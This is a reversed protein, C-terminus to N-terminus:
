WPPANEYLFELHPRVESVARDRLLVAEGLCLLYDSIPQRLDEPLHAFRGVVDRIEPENRRVGPLDQPKVSMAEWLFSGIREFSEETEVRTALIDATKLLSAPNHMLSDVLPLRFVDPRAYDHRIRLDRATMGMASLGKSFDRTFVDSRNEDVSYSNSVLVLALLWILVQTRM